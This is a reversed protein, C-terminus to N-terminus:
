VTKRFYYRGGSWSLYLSAACFVTVDAVFFFAWADGDTALPSLLLQRKSITSGVKIQAVIKHKMFKPNGPSLEQRLFNLDSNSLIGSNWETNSIDFITDLYVVM